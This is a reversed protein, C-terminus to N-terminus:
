SDERYGLEFIKNLQSIWNQWTSGSCTCPKFYSHNFYESHLEAIVRQANKDLSKNERIESYKEYEEKTFQREM